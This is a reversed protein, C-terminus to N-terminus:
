SDENETKIDKKLRTLCADYGASSSQETPFIMYTKKMGCYKNKFREVVIIIVQGLAHSFCM